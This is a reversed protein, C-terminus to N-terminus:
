VVRGRRRVRVRLHAQEDGFLRQLTSEAHQTIATRTASVADADLRVLMRNRRRRVRGRVRRADTTQTVTASLYQEVPRRLLWWAQRQGSALPLRRAPWRRLELVLLLLGLAALAASGVRVELQDVRLQRAAAAWDRAPILLPGRGLLAAVAEAAVLLGGVLFALGLLLSLLRNAARM